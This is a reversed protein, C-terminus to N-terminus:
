ASRMQWSLIQTRSALLGIQDAWSRISFWIDSFYAKPLILFASFTFRKFELKSFRVSISKIKIVSWFPSRTGIQDAFLTTQKTKQTQFRFFPSFEQKITTQSCFPVSVEWLRTVNVANLTIKRSFITNRRDRILKDRFRNFIVHQFYGCELFNPRQM